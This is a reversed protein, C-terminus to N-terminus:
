IVEGRAEAPVRFGGSIFNRAAERRLVLRLLVYGGLGKRVMETRNCDFPWDSWPSQLAIAGMKREPKDAGKSCSQSKGM